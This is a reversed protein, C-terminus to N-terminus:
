IEGIMMDVKPISLEKRVIANHEKIWLLAAKGGSGAGSLTGTGHQSCM